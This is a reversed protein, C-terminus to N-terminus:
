IDIYEKDLYKVFDEEDEEYCHIHYKSVMSAKGALYVSHIYKAFDENSLNNLNERITM